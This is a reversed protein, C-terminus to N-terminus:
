PNDERMEPLEQRRPLDPYLKLLNSPKHCEECLTIGNDIVFRLEPYHIFSKIHHANLRHKRSGKVGCSQCTYYDREYVAKRWEALEKRVSNRVQSHRDTIGGQWNYHQEGAPAAYRLNDRQAQIIKKKTEESHHKGWFPNEAGIQKDRKSQSIRECWEQSRPPHKKGLHALSMKKLEESTYKKGYFHNKEGKNRSKGKQALRQKEIWEQSRMGRNYVMRTLFDLCKKDLYVEGFKGCTTRKM